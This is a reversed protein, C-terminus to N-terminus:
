IQELFRNEMPRQKCILLTGTHSKSVFSFLQHIKGHWEDIWTFAQKHGLLLIDKVVQVLYFYMKTRRLKSISSLTSGVSKLFSTITLQILLFTRM